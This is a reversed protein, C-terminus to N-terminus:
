AAPTARPAKGSARRSEAVRKPLDAVIRRAEAVDYGVTNPGFRIPRPILGRAMWDYVASHSVDGLAARLKPITVFGVSPWAGYDPDKAGNRSDKAAM